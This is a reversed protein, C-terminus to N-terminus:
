HFEARVARTCLKWVIGLHLLAILGAGAWTAAHFLALFAAPLAPQGSEDNGGAISDFLHLFWAAGAFCLATGIVLLAIFGIRGWERRKWLAWSIWATLASAVFSAANLLGAHAVLWQMQAPVGGFQRLQVFIAEFDVAQTAVLQMLSSAASLGGLALSVLALVDVFSSKAPQASM